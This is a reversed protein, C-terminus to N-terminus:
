GGQRALVRHDHAYVLDRLCDRGWLSAPRPHPARRAREARGDPGDRLFRPSLGLLLEPLRWVSAYRFSVLFQSSVPKLLFFDMNGKRIYEPVKNLNPYMFLDIFAEFVMFVGLLALAETFSWGGVSEANAFMVYLVVFGAGFSLLSNFANMVLNARYELELQM